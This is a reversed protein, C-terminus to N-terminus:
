SASIWSTHLVAQSSFLPYSATCVVTLGVRGFGGGTKSEKQGLVGRGVETGGGDRVGAAGGLVFNRAGALTPDPDSAQPGPCM